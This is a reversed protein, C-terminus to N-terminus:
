EGCCYSYPRKNQVMKLGVLGSNGRRFAVAHSPNGIAGSKKDKGKKVQKIVIWTVGALVLVGGTIALIKQTKTM